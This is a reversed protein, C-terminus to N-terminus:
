RRFMFQLRNGKNMGIKILKGTVSSALLRETLFRERQMRYYLNGNNIYALIIDNKDLTTMDPRKDDMCVRPYKVTSAMSVTQYSSLSPDYWYYKAQGSQVFAVFPNMNQDFTFSIETINSATFLTSEAVDTASIVVDDGVVQIKWLKVLLGNSPDNLATGGMEYDLLNTTGLSDGYQFDASKVTPSLYDFPLM